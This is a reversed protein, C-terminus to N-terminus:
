RSSAELFRLIVANVADPHTVPGMHGMDDLEVVEVRPLARTLLRAVGLSSMPSRKGIMYLVPIELRAFAALPTPEGFLAHEWARVSAMSSPLNPTVALATAGPKMWVSMVAAVASRIPTDNSSKRAPAALCVGTPRTPWGASCCM